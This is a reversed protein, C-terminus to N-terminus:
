AGEGDTQRLQKLLEPDFGLSPKGTGAAPAAAYGYDVSGDTQSLQKIFAQDVSAGSNATGTATIDSPGYGDSQHLQIALDSAGFASFSAFLVAAAAATKIAKM